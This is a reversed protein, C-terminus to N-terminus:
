AQNAHLDGRGEGIRRKAVLGYILGGVTGALTGIPGTIFVGLLPGQNANPMFLIPGIFGVFLAAGGVM